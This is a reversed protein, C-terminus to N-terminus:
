WAGANFNMHYSIFLLMSYSMKTTTFVGTVPFNQVKVLAVGDVEGRGWHQYCFIRLVYMRVGLVM